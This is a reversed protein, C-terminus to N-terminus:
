YSWVHLKAHSSTDTTVKGTFVVPVMVKLVVAMCDTGLLLTLQKMLKLGCFTDKKTLLRCLFFPVFRKTDEPSVM